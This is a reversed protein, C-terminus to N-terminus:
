CSNLPGRSARVKEAGSNEGMELRLEEERGKLFRNYSM